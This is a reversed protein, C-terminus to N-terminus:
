VWQSKIEEYNGWSGFKILIEEPRADPTLGMIARGSCQVKDGFSVGCYMEYDAFKPHPIRPAPDTVAVLPFQNRMIPTPPVAFRIGECWLQASINDNHQVNQWVAARSMSCESTWFLAPIARPPISSCPAKGIKLASTGPTACPFGVHESSVPPAVLVVNPEVVEVMDIASQEWNPIFVCNPTLTLVYKEGKFGERLQQFVTNAKTIRIFETYRRDGKIFQSRKARADYLSVGRRDSTLVRIRSPCAAHAFLNELTTATDGGALLLVCLTNAACDGTKCNIDSLALRKATTKRKQLVTILIIVLCATGGAILFKHAAWIDEGKKRLVDM